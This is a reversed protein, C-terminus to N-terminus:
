RKRPSTPRSRRSWRTASSWTPWRAAASASRSRSRTAKRWFGGCTACSSRTTASTPPRASSSNRSRSRSPRRAESRAGEEAARVQVQRFGHHPLGASRREAPDRGSRPRSGPGHGASRRALSHRGARGGRRDRAGASCPNGPEQPQDQRDTAISEDEWPSIAEPLTRILAARRRVGFAERFRRRVDFGLGRGHSCARFRRGDGKGSRRRGPSLAGERLTHERIKYGIKENRLDAEVRFGQAVLTQAVDDAYDAQADTINM